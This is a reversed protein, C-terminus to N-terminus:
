LKEMARLILEPTVPIEHIWVGVADHIASVIAPASVNATMEGIGKAGYPGGSSACEVIVAEMTEPIDAATPIVYTHLSEPQGDMSPYSPYLSEMLAAGLGMM